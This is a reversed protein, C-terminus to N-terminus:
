LCWRSSGHLTQYEQETRWEDGWLGNCNTHHVIERKGTDSHIRTVRELQYPVGRQNGYIYDGTKPITDEITSGFTM